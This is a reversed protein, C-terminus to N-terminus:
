FRAKHVTGIPLRRRISSPRDSRFQTCLDVATDNREESKYNSPAQLGGYGSISSEVTHREAKSHTLNCPEEL